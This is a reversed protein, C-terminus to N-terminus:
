KEWGPPRFLSDLKLMEDFTRNRHGTEIIINRAKLLEETITLTKPKGENEVYSYQEGTILYLARVISYKTSQVNLKDYDNLLTELLPVYNNNSSLGMANIIRNCTGRMEHKKQCRVYLNMLYDQSNACGTVGLTRIYIDHLYVNENHNLNNLISKCDNNDFVKYIRNSTLYFLKSPQNFGNALVLMMNVNYLIIALPTLFVFLFAVSLVIKKNKVFMAM